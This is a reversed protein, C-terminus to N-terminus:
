VCTNSGDRWNPLDSSFETRTAPSVVTSARTMAVMVAYARARSSNGPFDIMKVITIAVEINGSTAMTTGSSFSNVAHPHILM